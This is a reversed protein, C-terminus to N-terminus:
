EKAPFFSIGFNLGFVTSGFLADTEFGHSVSLSLRSALGTASLIKVGREIGAVLQDESRSGAGIFRIGLIPEIFSIAGESNESLHVGFGVTFELSTLQDNNQSASSFDVMFDFEFRKSAFTGLRFRSPFIVETINDPGSGSFGAPNGFDTVSVVGDVGFEVSGPEISEADLPLFAVVTLALVITKLKNITEQM